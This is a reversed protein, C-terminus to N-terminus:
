PVKKLPHELEVLGKIVKMDEEEIKMWSTDERDHFCGEDKDNKHEEGGEDLHAVFDDDNLTKM